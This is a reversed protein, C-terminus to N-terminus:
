EGEAGVVQPREVGGGESQGRETDEEVGGGGADCGVEDVLVIEDPGVGGDPGRRHQGLDHEGGDGTADDGPGTGAGREGDVGAREEEGRRSEDAQWHGLSRSRVLLRTPGLGDLAQLHDAVAPEQRGEGTDLGESRQGGAGGASQEDHESLVVEM